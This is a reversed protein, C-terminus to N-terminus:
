DHTPSLGLLALAREITQRQAPLFDPLATLDFYAVRSVEENPVFDGSLGQCLYTLSLHRSHTSNEILLLDVREARFGTEEQLERRVADAPHEGPRIDGGPLGWPYERRYTHHCLLLQNRANLALAGVSVEYHPRVFWGAIRQMWYPLLRWIGLLLRKM